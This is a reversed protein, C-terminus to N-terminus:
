VFSVHKPSGTEILEEFTPWSDCDIKILPTKSGVEISWNEEGWLSSYGGSTAMSWVEDATIPRGREWSQTLAARMEAFMDIPGGSAASDMGLGVTLGADFMERIPAIPCQLRINSRPCHSITVRGEAMKEIDTQSVDCCHVLQAKPRLLGLDKLSDVVNKGTIPVTYGNERRYDAMAGKGHLTLQSELPTEAVHISIPDSSRGFKALTEFDVTQLAHPSLYVPSFYISNQRKNSEVLEIKALREAEMFFTITEQFIVGQIGVSQLAEGAFPRDSHEGIYAVGTAQNEKAAVYCDERVQDLSMALKRRTLENIWSWYDPDPIQEQMGRYELHSHSNVFAPSLVFPDPMGTHPRVATIVGDEIEVELGLELGSTLVVGYPRLLM